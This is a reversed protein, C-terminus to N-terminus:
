PVENFPNDETVTPGPHLPLTIQTPSANFPLMHGLRMFHKSQAENPSLSLCKLSKSVNKQVATLRNNYFWDTFTDVCCCITRFAESAGPQSTTSCKDVNCITTHKVHSMEFAAHYNSRNNINFSLTFCEM